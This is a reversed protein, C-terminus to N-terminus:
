YPDSPNILNMIEENNINLLEKIEELYAITNVAQSTFITKITEFKERGYEDFKIPNDKNSIRVNINQSAKIIKELNCKRLYESVIDFKANSYKNNSSEIILSYLVVEQQKYVERKYYNYFKVRRALIKYTKSSPDWNLIEILVLSHMTNCGKKLEELTTIQKKSVLSYLYREQNKVEMFPELGNYSELLEKLFANNKKSGRTKIYLDKVEKSVRMDLKDKIDSM